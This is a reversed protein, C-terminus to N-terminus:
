DQRSLATCSNRRWRQVEAVSYGASAPVIMYWPMWYTSNIGGQCTINLRLVQNATGDARTVAAYGVVPHWSTVGSDYLATSVQQLGGSTGYGGPIDYHSSSNNDIFM